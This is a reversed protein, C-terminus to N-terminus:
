CFIPTEEADFAFVAYAQGEIHRVSAFCFLTTLPFAKEKDYPLAIYRRGEGQRLRAGEIGKLRKRLWSSRFLSEPDSVTEWAGQNEGAAPRVEGRLLRGLPETMRRSFRRRIAAQGGAPELVGLRLEGGGGVAWACWLGEEPLRCRADFWTYLQEREVTLEGAAKGNWLLPFKDM